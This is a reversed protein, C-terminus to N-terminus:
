LNNKNEKLIKDKIPPVQSYQKEKEVKLTKWLTKIATM